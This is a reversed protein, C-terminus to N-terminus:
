IILFQSLFGTKLGINCSAHHFFFLYLRNFKFIQLKLSYTDIATDNLETISYFVVTFSKKIFRKLFVYYGVIALFLRARRM